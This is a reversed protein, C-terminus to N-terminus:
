QLRVMLNNLTMDPCEHPHTKSKQLSSIPTSQLELQSPRGENQHNKELEIMQEFDDKNM